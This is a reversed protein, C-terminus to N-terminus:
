LVSSCLRSAPHYFGPEIGLRKKNLFDISDKTTKYMVNNALNLLYREEIGKEMRANMDNNNFPWEQEKSYRGSWMVKEM